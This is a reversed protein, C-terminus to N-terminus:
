NGSHPGFGYGIVDVYLTTGDPTTAELRFPRQFRQRLFVLKGSTSGGTAVDGSLDLQGLAKDIPKQWVGPDVELRPSLKSLSAAEGANNFVTVSLVALSKDEGTAAFGGFEKAEEISTVVVKWGASSAEAPLQAAPGKEYMQAQVISTRKIWDTSGTLRTVLVRDLKSYQADATEDEFGDKKVTRIKVQQRLAMGLIEEHRLPVVALPLESRGGRVGYAVLEVYAGTESPDAECFAESFPASEWHFPRAEGKRWPDAGTAARLVRSMEKARGYYGGGYYDRGAAPVESFQSAGFRFYASGGLETAYIVDDGGYTITGEVIARIGVTQKRKAPVDGTACAGSFFVRDVQIQFPSGAAAAKKGAYFAARDKDAACESQCKRACAADAACDANGAPAPGPKAQEAAAAPAELGLVPKAPQNKDKDGCAAVALAASAALAALALTTSARQRM